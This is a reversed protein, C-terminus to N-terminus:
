PNYPRWGEGLLRKWRSRAEQISTTGLESVIWDSSGSNQLGILIRVTDSSVKPVFFSVSTRDNHVNKLLLIHVNFTSRLEDPIVGEGTIVSMPYRPISSHFAASRSM